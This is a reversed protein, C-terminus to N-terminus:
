ESRLPIRVQVRTGDGAKTTISLSGGVLRVREQMSILGLGGEGQASDLDFGKGFDEVVLEIDENSTRLMVGVRNSEAHKWINHLSEQAVRYLCLSLKESLYEPVNEASFEVTTGSRRAYASCEARLAVELGLEHLVSPHLQRSFDHLEQALAGIQERCSRLKEEAAKLKTPLLIEIESVKLSLLAMKQGFVDHLERAISQAAEEQATLLRGALSQLIEQSVRLSTATAQLEEESRKRDTVDVCSGIYGTFTGRRDFLPVGRGSIWRYEGDYRRIRYDMAFPQRADFSQAYIRLCNESDDPHVNEAWGNGLEKEIPRGVFDLWPKNVWTCLKDTDTMWILVPASDALHHFRNETERQREEALKRETIDTIVSVAAVGNESTIYSLSVEVPFERGDKRRGALDLGIGMPRTRPRAFYGARHQEHVDRLQAPILMELPQGLMEERTYGFMQETAANVLEMRGANNVTVIAQAATELLARITEEARHLAEDPRPHETYEGSIRPSAM